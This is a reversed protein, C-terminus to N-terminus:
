KILNLKYRFKNIEETLTLITREVEEKYSEIIKEKCDVDFITEDIRENWVILYRKRKEVTMIQNPDVIFFSEMRAEELELLEEQYEELKSDKEREVLKIQDQRIRIEKKYTKLLLNHMLDLKSSDDLKLQALVKEKWTKKVKEM